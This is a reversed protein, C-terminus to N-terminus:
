TTPGSAPSAARARAAVTSRAAATATGSTRSARGTRRPRRLDDRDGAGGGRQLSQAQGRAARQRYRRDRGPVHDGGAGPRERARLPRESFTQAARPASGRAYRDIAEVWARDDSRIDSVEDEKAEPQPERGACHLYDASPEAGTGDTRAVWRGACRRAAEVRQVATQFGARAPLCGTGVLGPSPRNVECRARLVADSRNRCKAARPASQAATRRQGPRRGGVATGDGGRRDGLPGLRVVRRSEEPRRCLRPAIEAGRRGCCGNM